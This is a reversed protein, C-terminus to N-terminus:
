GRGLLRALAEVDAAVMRAGDGSLEGGLRERLEGPGIVAVTVLGLRALAERVGEDSPL